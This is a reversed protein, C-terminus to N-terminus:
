RYRRLTTVIQSEAVEIADALRFRYDDNRAALIDGACGQVEPPEIPVVLRCVDTITLDHDRHLRLVVALNRLGAKDIRGGCCSTVALNVDTLTLSTLRALRVLRNAEDLWQFPAAEGWELSLGDASVTVPPRVGVLERLEEGTLGTAEAFRETGRLENLSADAALGYRAKLTTEDAAPTTLVRVDDPSLALYERAAIDRDPSPAFLRYLELPTVQLYHLYKALRAADLSFPLGLPHERDRLAVYPDPGVLRELVENVIDLYPTETFTNDADLLVQKLDPRRALLSPGDFSGDLLALLDVFYAAPSYVSRADGDSRLDLEGFLEQYGPSSSEARLVVVEVPVRTPM